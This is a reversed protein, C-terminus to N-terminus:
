KSKKSPRLIAGVAAMNPAGVLHKWFEPDSDFARRPNLEPEEGPKRWEEQAMRDLFTQYQDKEKPM